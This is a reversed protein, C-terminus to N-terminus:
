LRKNLENVICGKDVGHLCFVALNELTNLSYLFPANPFFPNIVGWERTLCLDKDFICETGKWVDLMSNRIITLSKRFKDRWWSPFLCNCYRVFYLYDFLSIQDTLLIYCLFYKEQFDMCLSLCSTGSEKKNKLFANYSNFTKTEIYRSLGWSPYVFFVTYFKM